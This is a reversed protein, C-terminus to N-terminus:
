MKIGNEELLPFNPGIKVPTQFNRSLFAEVIAVSMLLSDSITM